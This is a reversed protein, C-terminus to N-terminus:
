KQGEISNGQLAFDLGFWKKHGGQVTSGPLHPIRILTRWTDPRFWTWGQIQLNDIQWLEVVGAGAMAVLPPIRVTKMFM